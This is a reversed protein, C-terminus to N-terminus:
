ISICKDRFACNDPPESGSDIKRKIFYFVLQEFFFIVAFPNIVVYVPTFDTTTINQATIIGPENIMGKFWVGNIGLVVDFPQGNGAAINVGTLLNSGIVSCKIRLKIGIFM